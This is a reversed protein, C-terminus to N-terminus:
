EFLSRLRDLFSRQEPAPREGLEVALEEVLRRASPSLDEPTPVEIQVKVLQDGKGVGGFVAIGKGRLRFVKGSPTGPPLKMKVKGELTPVDIQAGLVAQPFSIPVTCLVDAGDRTFFPHAAVHVYVHLDGPGGPGPAGAGRVTRVSGDEVGPPVRVVYPEKRAVAGQGRCTGCPTTIRKGSGRCTECPRTAVFFGRTYRQEGRGGCAPCPEIRTGPEAGSGACAECPIQRVIEISRETGLAAEEFSITLDIRTDEGTRRGRGSRGAGFLGEFLDVLSGLDVAADFGGPAGSGGREFAAHGLRDYAARKDPDSLVAYAESVEKFREEAAKDGPNRDPHYEIARKRYARKIDEITADRTVGLVEYYDRRSAAM